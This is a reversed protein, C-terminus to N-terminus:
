LLKITTKKTNLKQYEKIKALIDSERFLFYTENDELDVKTGGYEPLLVKDGVKLIMAIKTGAEFKGPGCAIVMGQNVKGVVNDPLVIGGRTKTITKLRRVLVRDLLPVVSKIVTTISM